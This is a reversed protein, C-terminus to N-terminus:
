PVDSCILVQPEGKVRTFVLVRGGSGELKLRRRFSEPQIPSGRKMMTVYGVCLARLRENLRKLHFPHSEEIQLVTAFPTRVLRDSTLYAIHDDIKSLGVLGALHEVLHARVVASDPNYLYSGPPEITVRDTQMRDTISAGQPLITARRSCETKLEGLWLVGEKCTGDESIFELEADLSLMDLEGYRVGPSIKAAVDGTHLLLRHLITLPPEYHYVSYVREGMTRRSPDLFLAQTSPVSIETFDANLFDVRDSMGYANANLQAMRLRLPDREIAVVPTYRALHITDGGIGCGLDGISSYSDFRRARYTSIVEGSAQELAEKTFYMQHARSFKSQARLRLHTLDLAAAAQDRSYEKRLRTLLTLSDEEAVQEERLRALLIQGPQSLLFDLTGLEMRYSM